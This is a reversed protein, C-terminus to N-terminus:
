PLEVLEGGELGSKIIYYNGVRDGVEVIAANRIDNEKVVYVFHVGGKDFVAQRNVYCVDKLTPLDFELMLNKELMDGEQGDPRFYVLSDDEGEPTEVVTLPYDVNRLKGTVKEGIKFTYDDTKKTTYLGRDTDVRIMDEDPALYGMSFMTSVFSVHGDGEAILNLREYTEKVDAVYLRAVEIDRNLQRIEESHDQSPDISSLRRLHDIERRASAIQQENDEIQKDLVESHFSVLVDGAHVEDGVSVHIADLEMKYTGFLEEFESRTFRYKVMEYGLLDLRTSYPVTLDGRIVQTTKPALANYVPVEAPVLAAEKANGCGTLTLAFSLSLFINLKRFLKSKM